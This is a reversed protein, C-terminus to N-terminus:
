EKELKMDSLTKKFDNSPTFLIKVGKIKDKTFDKETDVGDSSFSLRFTGFDGLQVSNGKILEQPLLELLNQIVNNVDGSTLSSRGSIQQALNKQTITGNKIPYCVM